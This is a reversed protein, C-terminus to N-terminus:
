ALAYRSRPQRTSVTNAAYGFPLSTPEFRATLTTGLIYVEDVRTMCMILPMDIEYWKYTLHLPVRECTM